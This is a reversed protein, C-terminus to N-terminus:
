KNKDVYIYSIIFLFTWLMVALGKTISTQSSWLDLFIAGIIVGIIYIIIVISSKNM